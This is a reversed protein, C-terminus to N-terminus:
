PSSPASRNEPTFALVPIASRLRSLRKASDGSQTFAVVYKAGVRAAVEEAAKAIVGGGTHPDWDIPTVHRVRRRDLAHDETATIIRAM